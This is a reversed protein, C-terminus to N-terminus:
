IVRELVDLMEEDQSFYFSRFFASKFWYAHEYSRFFLTLNFRAKSSERLLKQMCLVINNANVQAAWATVQLFGDQEKVEVKFKIKPETQEHVLIPLNQESPIIRRM